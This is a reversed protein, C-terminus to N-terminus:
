YGPNQTMLSNGDLERQPIPWLYHKESFTRSEVIVTQGNAPNTAGSVPGNMVQEGIHWRRIDFLRFGEFALEVRRERRYLERMKAENNYVTTNVNPMGARNRIENLYKVVDPHNWQGSEVLAEVYTLLVGAYRYLM